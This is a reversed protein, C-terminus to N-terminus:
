KYRSHYGYYEDFISKIRNTIKSKDLLDDIFIKSNKTMIEFKEPNDSIDKLIQYLNKPDDLKLNIVKDKYEDELIEVNYAIRSKFYFAEFLPLSTNGVYTPLITLYCNKYINIIEEDDLYEYIYFKEELGFERIKKQIFKLNGRDRGTFICNFDTEDKLNLEHFADVIYRHNKHAWFQAPFFLTKRLDINKLSKNQNEYSQNNENFILNSILPLISIKNKPCNYFESFELKTKKCDTIIKFARKSAHKYIKESNIFKEYTYEPFFSHKKHDLNWVNFIFNKNECFISLHSQDVFFVLDINNENLFKEFSNTINFFKLIKKIFEFKFLKLNLKNLFSSKNFFLSEIGRSKFYNSAFSSSSSFKIEYKDSKIKELINITGLTQQLGGGSGGSIDVFAAIKM